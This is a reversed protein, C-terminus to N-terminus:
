KINRLKTRMEEFQDSYMKQIYFIELTKPGPKTKHYTSSYIGM